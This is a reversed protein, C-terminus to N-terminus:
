NCRLSLYLYVGEAPPILYNHISPLLVKDLPVSSSHDYLWHVIQFVLDMLENPVPSDTHEEKIAHLVELVQSESVVLPVGLNTWFGLQKRFPDPVAFLYPAMSFPLNFALKPLQTYNAMSKIYVFKM